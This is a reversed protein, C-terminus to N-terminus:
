RKTYNLLTVCLRKLVWGTEYHSRFVVVTLFVTKCTQNRLMTRQEGSPLRFTQSVMHRKDGASCCVPVSCHWAASLSGFGDRYIDTPRSLAEMTVCILSSWKCILRRRKKCAHLYAFSADKRRWLTQHHSHTSDWETAWVFVAACLGTISYRHPCHQM